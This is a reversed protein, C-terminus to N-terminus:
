ESACSGGDGILPNSGSSARRARFLHNARRMCLRIFPLPDTWDTMSKAECRWAWAAWHLLSEGHLRAAQADWPSCWNVGPSVPRPPSTAGGSLDRWVLAPINVGAIAAPHCWLTYRPNVELLWLAGSADRKFDLKAPGRVGLEAIVQRGLEKVDATDTITLATSRGFEVPKTRLKRGTFEAVVDGAANVYTHYSEIRTEPGSILQQVLVSSGFAVLQPWLKVLDALSGVRIAKRAAELDEWKRDGRTSPKVIVPFQLNIDKPSDVLPDLVQSLPVPLRLREARDRFRRKDLLDEMLAEDAILIRFSDSLQRRYRSVFLAHQDSQYFLVPQIPQSAGFTLLLDLLQQPHTRPDAWGVVTAKRSYRAPDGPPAVISCKVGAMVLPAVLDLDGLVCAGGTVSRGISRAKGVTESTM